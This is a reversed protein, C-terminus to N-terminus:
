YYRNKSISDLNAKLPFEPFPIVIYNGNVTEVFLFPQPMDLPYQKKFVDVYTNIKEADGEPPTLVSLNMSGTTTNGDWTIWNNFDWQLTSDNFPKITLQHYYHYVDNVKQRIKTKNFLNSPVFPALDELIYNGNNDAPFENYILYYSRYSKLLEDSDSM